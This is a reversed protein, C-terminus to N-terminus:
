SLIRSICMMSDVLPTIINETEYLIVFIAYKIVCLFPLFLVEGGGGRRGGEPLGIKTIM